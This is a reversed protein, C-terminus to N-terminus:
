IHAKLMYLVGGSVGRDQVSASALWSWVVMETVTKCTQVGHLQLGKLRVSSRRCQVRKRGQLV